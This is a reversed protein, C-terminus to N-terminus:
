VAIRSLPDYQTKKDRIGLWSRIIASDSFTDTDQQMVKNFNKVICCYLSGAVAKDFRQTNNPDFHQWQRLLEKDMVSHLYDFDKKPDKPERLYINTDKVYAEISKTQSSFGAIKDTGIAQRFKGNEYTILFKVYNPRNNSEDDRGAILDVSLWERNVEILARASCFILAKRVEEILDNPNSPRHCWTAIIKGGMNPLSSDIATGIIIAAKSGGEIEERYAMPDVTILYPSTSIPSMFGYYDTSNKNRWREDPLEYFTWHGFTKKGEGNAHFSVEKDRIEFELAGKTYFADEIGSLVKKEKTDIYQIQALIRAIDYCASTNASEFPDTEYIPYQRKLAQLSKLDGKLRYPRSLKDIENMALDEKCNGYRDFLEVRTGNPLKVDGEIAYKGSIFWKWLGTETKGDTNVNSTDSGWYITNWRDFNPTDKEDSTGFFYIKGVQRTGVKAVPRLLFLMNSIDVDAPYKSVEDRNIRFTGTGDNANEVTSNVVITTNLEDISLRELQKTKEELTLDNDNDISEIARKETDSMGFHANKILLKGIKPRFIEKGNSLKLSPWKEVNYKLPTYNVEIAERLVKNMLSFKKQTKLTAQNLNDANFSASIGVRRPKSVAGGECERKKATHDLFYFFEMQYVRYQPYMMGDPAFSWVLQSWKLFEDSHFDVGEEELEPVLFYQLFFYHSGTIYVIEGNNWFHVGHKRRTLERKVFEVKKEDTWKKNMEEFNWEERRWYQNEKKENWYLVDEKNEPIAPLEYDYERLKYIM